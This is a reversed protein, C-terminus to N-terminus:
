IWNGDRGSFDWGSAPGGDIRLRKCRPHYASLLALKTVNKTEGVKAYVKCPKGGICNRGKSVSVCLLILEDVDQM